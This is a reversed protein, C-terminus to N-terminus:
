EEVVDADVIEHLAGGPQLARIDGARLQELVAAKAGEVLEVKVTSQSSVAVRQAPPRWGRDAAQCYLFLTAAALNGREALEFVKEEITEIGRTRAEDMLEIFEPSKMLDRLKRPSWGVALAANLQGRGCSLAELFMLTDASQEPHITVLDTM